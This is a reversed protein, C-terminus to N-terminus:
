WMSAKRQIIPGTREILAWIALTACSLARLCAVAIEAHTGPPTAISVLDIKNDDLIKRYDEYIPVSIKLLEAKEQARLPVIDILARIEARDPFALYAKLHQPSIAGTGVMAVGIM